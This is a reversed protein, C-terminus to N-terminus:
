TRRSELKEKLLKNVVGPDAKGKTAKMIQGVFFGILKEAGALYRAVNEENESLVKDIMSELEGTDSIMQNGAFDIESLPKREAVLEKVAQKGFSASIKQENVQL